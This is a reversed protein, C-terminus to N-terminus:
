FNIGQQTFIEAMATAGYTGSVEEDHGFAFYVDRTPKHNDKLLATAAELLGIVGVKDDLTGRGWIIGDQIVGDFPPHTWEDKTGPAIPVV